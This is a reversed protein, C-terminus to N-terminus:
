KELEQIKSRMKSPENDDCYIKKSASKSYQMSSDGQHLTSLM